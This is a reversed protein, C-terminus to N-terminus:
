AVHVHETFKYGFGYVTLLLAPRAPDAEIKKRLNMVHVDVTRELGDYDLGFVRDLLDLRSFVRGPEKILVELLRFEKPTLQLATGRLRRMRVLMRFAGDFWAGLRLKRKLGLARLLPPHLQYHM